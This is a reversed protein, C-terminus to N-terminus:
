SRRGMLFAGGAGVIAIIALILAVIGLVSSADDGAAGAAGAAGQAGAEGVAGAAGDAGAAGRAGADGQPGQAGTDGQDGQPGTDGQDGQPGEPGQDGQPGQLGREGQEGQPGVMSPPEETEEPPMPTEEEDGPMMGTVPSLDLKQVGQMWSGEEMAMADGIMFMVMMGDTGDAITLNYEGDMTMATAVDEGDVEATITTGDPAPAMEGDIDIMVNGVFIAPPSQAFAVAPITLLLALVSFLALFKTKTM